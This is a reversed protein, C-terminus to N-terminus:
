PRAPPRPSSRSRTSSCSPSSSRALLVSGDAAVEASVQGGASTGVFPGQEGRSRPRRRRRARRPGASSRGLGVPRGPTERPEERRRGLVARPTRRPTPTTKASAHLADAHSGLADSPRGFCSDAITVAGMLTLQILPCVTDTSGFKIAQYRGEAAAVPRAPRHQVPGAGHRRRAPRGAPDAFGTMEDERSSSSRPSCLDTSCAPSRSRDNKIARFEAGCQSAAEPAPRADVAENGHAPIADAVGDRNRLVRPDLKLSQVRGHSDYVATVCGDPTSCTTTGDTDTSSTLRRRRAQNLLADLASAPDGSPPATQM